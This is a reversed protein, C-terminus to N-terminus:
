RSQHLDVDGLHLCPVDDFSVLVNYHLVLGADNRIDNIAVIKGKVTVMLIVMLVGVRAGVM